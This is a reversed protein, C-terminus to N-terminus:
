LCSLPSEKYQLLYLKVLDIHLYPETKLNVYGNGIRILPTAPCDRHVLVIIGQRGDSLLAACGLLREMIKQMFTTVIIPDFYGFANDM